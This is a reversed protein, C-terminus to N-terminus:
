PNWNPREAFHVVYTTTRCHSAETQLLEQDHSSPWTKICCRQFALMSGHTGFSALSMMEISSVTLLYRQWKKHSQALVILCPTKFIPRLRLEMPWLKTARCPAVRALLGCKEARLWSIMRSGWICCSEKSQMVALERCRFASLLMKVWNFM